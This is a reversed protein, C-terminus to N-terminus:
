TNQISTKERCICECVHMCVPIYLIFCMHTYMCMHTYINIFLIKECKIEQKSVKNIADKALFLNKFSSTKLNIQIEM